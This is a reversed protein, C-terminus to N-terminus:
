SGCCIILAIDSSLCAFLCLAAADELQAELMTAGCSQSDATKHEQGTDVM